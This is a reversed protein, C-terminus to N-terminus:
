KRWASEVQHVKGLTPFQNDLVHYNYHESLEKKFIIQKCNECVLLGKKNKGDYSNYLEQQKPIDPLLVMLEPFIDDFRDGLVSKCHEYFNKTPYAGNRFLASYTKFEKIVDNNNLVDMLRKILNQNRSQFNTPLHYSNSPTISYSQGTSTTFTLHTNGLSPFSAPSFGPPKSNTSQLGPPQLGPSPKVSFGPPPKTIELNAFDNSINEHADPSCLTGVNLESRKKVLGNLNKNTNGKNNNNNLNNSGNIAESKNLSTSQEKSDNTEAKNSSTKMSEVEQIIKNKKKKQKNKTDSTEGNRVDNTKSEAISQHKNKAKNESKKSNESVQQINKNANINNISKSSNSAKRSNMNNLNVWNNQGTPTNKSLSPFQELSSPTLQPAPAVKSAKPEQKKPKVQVWQPQAVTTTNGM